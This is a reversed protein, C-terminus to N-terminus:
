EAEEISLLEVASFLDMDNKTGKVRKHSALYSLTPHLYTFPIEAEVIRWVEELNRDSAERDISYWIADRLRSLEPNKYGSYRFDKYTEIYNQTHMAADFDHTERLKAWLANRQYTGIDMHVGVRRFKDQIYVAHTVMMETTSLSFRFDQGDKERIGDGNTDVWGAEALLHAALEPDFPMPKPVVGKQHHRQLAPVDFVPLDDPYNLVQNLEHRDIALTLARRVSADQFLPNRHNWLIGVHSQYKIKYYINFRPDEALQVAQLPKIRSVVDVNGSLLETLGNGGFRLVVKPISPAEGYYDPNAELETMVGPIHRVYRYPGNGVPQIWYPWSFISDLDLSELLHKPLMALWSYEFIKGKVPETFVIQLRHSDLVNVADFFPYEYGIQPNTWLELSFKVDEATVPTGDGWLVGERVHVTWQTFDSTHEWRDLLRPQHNESSDPDVTLSLFVLFWPHAGLPGFLREDLSPVHITLSPSGAPSETESDTADQSCGNSLLAVLCICAIIISQKYKMTKERGQKQDV